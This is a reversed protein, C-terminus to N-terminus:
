RKNRGYRENKHNERNSQRGHGRFNGRFRNGRYNQRSSNNMSYRRNGNDSRAQYGEQGYSRSQERSKYIQLKFPKREHSDKAALNSMVVM